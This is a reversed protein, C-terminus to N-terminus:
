RHFSGHIHVGGGSYSGSVVSHHGYVPRGYVPPGYVPHGYVPPRYVPPPCVPVVVPPRYYVPPRYQHRVPRHGWVPYGRRDHRIIYREAYIPSGCSQYGSIFVTTSHHSGGYGRGYDRAEATPTAGLWALAGLTLTIALSKM